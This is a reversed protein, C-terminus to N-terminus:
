STLLLCPPWLDVEKGGLDRTGAAAAKGLDSKDETCLHPCLQEGTGVEGQGAKLWVLPWSATMKRGLELNRGKSM